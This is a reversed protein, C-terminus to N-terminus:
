DGRHLPKDYRDRRNHHRINDISIWDTLQRQSAIAELFARSVEFPIMAKKNARLPDDSWTDHDQKRHELDRLGTLYPYTGWLCFPGIIQRPEGLYPLFHPIAGVVNEICWYRPQLIQIIDLSALVLSMDPIFPEGARQAVPGPAGYANSFERCPPSAWIFDYYPLQEHLACLADWQKTDWMSHFEDETNQGTLMLLFDRMRLVDDEITSELDTLLPNNEIRTVNWGDQLFAESAGGLGSFLDLM